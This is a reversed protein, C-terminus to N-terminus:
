DCIHGQRRVRPDLCRELAHMCLTDTILLGRFTHVFDRVHYEVEYSADGLKDLLSELAELLTDMTADSLSNYRDMAVESHM